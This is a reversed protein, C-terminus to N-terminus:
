SGKRRMKVLLYKVSYGMMIKYLVGINGLFRNLDIGTITQIFYQYLGQNNNASNIFFTLFGPKSTLRKLRQSVKFEKWIRRYVEKDYRANFRASFDNKQMCQQIHEAAIRGSRLANGVGEGTFPDAMAAADGVLLFRNGSLPRKKDLSHIVHGKIQDAPVAGELRKQIIDKELLQQFLKKIDVKKKMIDSSEMALGINARNGKMPFLWLYYPATEKFYYLEIYNQPHLSSVNDYYTRLGMAYYKKHLQFGGLQKGVRSNIGDAGVVMKAKYHRNKTTVIVQNEDQVMIKARCNEILQINPYQKVEEILLHDFEKRPCVYLHKDQGGEKYPIDIHKGNDAYLRMGWSPIKHPSDDLQKALRPSIKPLQKIVDPTLGDGCTKERPFTAKDILGIRYGSKALMIACSAGAPGAGIVIIDFTRDMTNKLAKPLYVKKTQYLLPFLM